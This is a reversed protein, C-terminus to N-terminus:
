MTENTQITQNETGDQKAQQISMEQMEQDNPENTKQTELQEQKVTEVTKVGTEIDGSTNDASKGRIKSYIKKSLYVIGGVKVQELAESEVDNEHCMIYGIEGHESIDTGQVQEEDSVSWGLGPIWNLALFLIITIVFSWAGVAGIGALQIALQIFNGDWWGGGIVNGTTALVTYRAGFIGVFFCGYMGGVGHAAFADLSDDIFKAKLRIFPWIFFSSTAGLLGAIGPYLYGAAPTVSALGCVCGCCFGALTPKGRIIWDWMIWVVGGFAGSINTNVLILGAWANSKLASGGNFGLWGFWLLGTGIVILPINHAQAIAYRSGRSPPQSNEPQPTKIRERVRRIIKTETISKFGLRNKMCICLALASFGATMHVAFGGALDLIGLKFL